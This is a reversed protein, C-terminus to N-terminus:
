RKRHHDDSATAWVLASLLIALTMVVGSVILRQPSGSRGVAPGLLLMVSFAMTLIAISLLANKTVPKM